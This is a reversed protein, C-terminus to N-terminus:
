LERDKLYDLFERVEFPPDINLKKYAGSFANYAHIALLDRVATISTDFVEPLRQPYRCQWEIATRVVAAELAIFVEKKQVQTFKNQKSDEM